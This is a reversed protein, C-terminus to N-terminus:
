CLWYKRWVVAHFASISHSIRAVHLSAPKDYTPLRMAQNKYFEPNQFAALRLLCNLMAPALDKKEIYVLNARVVQVREPLPGRDAPGATKEIAAVDV